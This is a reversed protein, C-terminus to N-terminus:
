TFSAKPVFKIRMVVLENTLMSYVDKKDLCITPVNVVFESVYGAVFNVKAEQLIVEGQCKYM